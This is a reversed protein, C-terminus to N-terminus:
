FDKFVIFLNGEVASSSILCSTLHEHADNVRPKKELGPSLPQVSVLGPFSSKSCGIEYLPYSNRKTRTPDHKM